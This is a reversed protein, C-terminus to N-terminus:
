GHLQPRDGPATPPADSATSDVDYPQRPRRGTRQARRTLRDGLRHVLAPALRSRVAPVLLALGLLDTIFGPVILLPGALLALAGDAVESGPGRPSPNTLAARLRTLVARGEARMLWSGVPWSAILLLICWLVGIANAVVIAAAIEALPWIILLILFVIRLSDRSRIRRSHGEFIGAAM